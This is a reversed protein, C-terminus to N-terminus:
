IYSSYKLYTLEREYMWHMEGLVGVQYIYSGNVLRKIDVICGSKNVVHPYYYKFHYYAEVDSSDINILVKDGLNFASQMVVQPDCQVAIPGCTPLIDDITIQRQQMHEYNSM